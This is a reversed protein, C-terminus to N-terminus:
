EPDFDEVKKSAMGTLDGRMRKSYSKICVGRCKGWPITTLQGLSVVFLWTGGGVFKKNGGTDGNRYYDQAGANNHAESFEQGVFCSPWSEGLCVKM